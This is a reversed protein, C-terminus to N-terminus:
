AAKKKFEWCDETNQSKNKIYILLRKAPFGGPNM